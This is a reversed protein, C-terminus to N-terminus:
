SYMDLYMACYVDDKNERWERRVGNGRQQEAASALIESRLIVAWLTLQSDSGRHLAVGVRHAM